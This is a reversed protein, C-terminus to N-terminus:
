GAAHLGLNFGGHGKDFIPPLTRNDSGDLLDFAGESSLGAGLKHGSFEYSEVAGAVPYKTRGGHCEACESDFDLALAASMGIMLLFCVLIANRVSLM